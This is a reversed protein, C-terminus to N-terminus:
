ACPLTKRDGDRDRGRLICRQSAGVRGCVAGPIRKIEEYGNQECSTKKDYQIKHCFHFIM